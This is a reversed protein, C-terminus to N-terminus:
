NVREILAKHHRQAAVILDRAGDGGLAAQCLHHLVEVYQSSDADDYHEIEDVFTEVLVLERDYIAFANLPLAPLSAVPPIVRLDVNGLALVTMLRDLQATMVESNAPGSRLVSETVIFTFTKSEDYIHDHRRARREARARPEGDIPNIKSLAMFLAEAYDTTQLPGPVMAVEVMAVDTAQALLQDYAADVDAARGGLRDRWTLRKNAAEGLREVLEEAEGVFGCVTAWSRIDDPAPKVLGNELRSVKSASWDLATALEQGSFGSRRRMAGLRTAIGDPQTLWQTLAPNKM